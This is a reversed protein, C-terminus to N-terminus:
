RKKKGSLHKLGKKLAFAMIKMMLRETMPHEPDLQELIDMYPLAKDLEGKEILYEAILSNYNIVETYHFVEREPYVQKIDLKNDLIEAVRQLDGTDLFQRAYNIRALLYDPFAKYMQEILQSAEEHRGTNMYSVSLYNQLIPFGPYQKVLEQLRPIAKEPKDNALIYLKELEDGIQKYYEEYKEDEMPEFSIDYSSFEMRPPKHDSGLRMPIINGNNEETEEFGEFDIDEFGSGYLDGEPLIVTFNGEGVAATLKKIILSVNDYPGAIFCPKGERGFDLEILDIHDDDEELIFRSVAFDKNPKFGLEEAYAIAGYIINHALTYDCPKYTQHTYIIDKFESEYHALSENFFYNTNKLGLCFIDVLYVGAILNGSPQKRSVLITAMGSTQWDPNILCEHIPLSRTKTQIYKDPRLQAPASSKKTKKHAM